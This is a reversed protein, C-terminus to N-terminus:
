EAFTAVIHRFRTKFMLKVVREKKWPTVYQPSDFADVSVISFTGHCSSTNKSLSYDFPITWLIFVDTMFAAIVQTGALRELMTTWCKDSPMTSRGALRELMTTWYYKVICNITM